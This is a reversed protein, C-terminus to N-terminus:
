EEGCGIARLLISLIQPGAESQHNAFFVVNEGAEIQAFAKKANEKGMEISNELDMTPHFFDFGFEYFDFTNGDDEEPNKGCLAIHRVDILYKDSGLGHKMGLQISSMVCDEAAKPLVDLDSDLQAADDLAAFYEDMFYSLPAILSKTEIAAKTTELM